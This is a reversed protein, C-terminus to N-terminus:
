AAVMVRVFLLIWMALLAVLGVLYANFRRMVRNAGLQIAAHGVRTTM